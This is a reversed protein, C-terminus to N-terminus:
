ISSSITTCPPPVCKSSDSESRQLRLKVPDGGKLTSNLLDPSRRSSSSCRGIGCSTFWGDALDYALLHCYLIKLILKKKTIKLPKPNSSGWGSGDPAPSPRCNKVLLRWQLPLLGGTAWNTDRAPCSCEQVWLHSGTSERMPVSNLRRLSWCLRPLSCTMKLRWDWTTM